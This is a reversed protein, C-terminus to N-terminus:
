TRDIALHHSFSILWKDLVLNPNIVSMDQQKIQLLEDYLRFLQAESSWDIAQIIATIAQQYGLEDKLHEGKAPRVSRKVLWSIVMQLWSILTKPQIMKTLAERAQVPNLQRQLLQALVRLLTEFHQIEESQSYELATIPAGASLVLAKRAKDDDVRQEGLWAMADELIPKDVQIEICRSRITMPLVSMNSSVLILVSDPNPEELLKLLANAANTNMADAPHILAVKHRASHHSLSFNEILSRVQDVTIVQRPKRKQRKSQDELYRETYVLHTFSGNLVLSESSLYHFDPHNNSQFLICNQCQGCAKLVNDLVMPQDCLLSAVIEMAFLGKGVGTEGHILLAHPLHASLQLFQARSQDLWDLRM